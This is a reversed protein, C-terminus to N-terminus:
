RNGQPKQSPAPKHGQPELTAVHRGNKLVLVPHGAKVIKIMKGWSRRIETVSLYVGVSGKLHQEIGSNMTMLRTKARRSFSSPM